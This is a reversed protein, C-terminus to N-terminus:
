TIMDIENVIISTSFFGQQRTLEYKHNPKILTIPSIKTGLGWNFGINMDKEIKFKAVQGAKGKWIVSKNEMNYICITGALGNCLKIAVYGENSENSENQKGAIPYGCEPCSVAASSVKRGCEPCNILAM